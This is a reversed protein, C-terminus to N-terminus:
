GLAGLHLALDAVDRLTRAPLFDDVFPLAARLGRTLPAYDPTGILPNLWIVRSARRRLRAMQRALELPDGRDWGDSVLLVVAGRGLVRSGWQRHLDRLAAGIRTGSAWDPVARAVAGAAANVQRARLDRTVRTLATSFLFVEVRGHRRAVAHAFHILMRSYREMSGSVDCVLVLPRPRLRRRRAPLAMLEGGSRVSRKLASRLDLAPGRGPQWRRSRRWGPHWPLRALADAVRTMEEPTFEAFDRHALRSVDSWVGIASGTDEAATDDTMSGAEALGAALDRSDDAEPALAAGSDGAGADLRWFDDFARDFIALDDRRSVLVARCAHYVDARAGADVHTLAEIADVARSGPVDLGRARLLRAFAVMRHDLRSM